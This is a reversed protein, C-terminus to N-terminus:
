RIPSTAQSGFASSSRRMYYRILFFIAILTSLGILWNLLVEIWSTANLLEITQVRKDKNIQNTIDKLQRQFNSVSFSLEDKVSLVSDKVGKMSDIVAQQQSRRSQLSQYKGVLDNIVPQAEVNAIRTQEDNLWTDGKVLTYYAVRAAQYADPAVDRANEAAQLQNFATNIKTTKDINADAVALDNTFRDIEAQYVERNPLLKYSSNPLLVQQQSYQPQSYPNYPDYYQQTQSYVNYPDYYQQQYSGSSQLGVTYMPVPLLIVRANKDTKHICQPMFTDTRLEYNKDTPCPLLCSVGNPHLIFESPCSNGQM